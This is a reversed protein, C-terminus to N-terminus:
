RARREAENLAGLRQGKRRRSHLAHRQLRLPNRGLVGRAM